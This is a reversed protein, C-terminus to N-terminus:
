DEVTKLLSEYGLKRLREQVIEANKLDTNSLLIYLKGGEMVGMYDTQRINGAVQIAIAEYSHYGMVIEVLACETLGKERADFFAKILIKFAEEKLVNTGTLYRKRRFSSMYRNARLIANQLVTKVVILRNAESESLREGSIGWFMLIVRIEDEAFVAGAMLPLGKDMATNRYIRDSKIEEYMEKMDVYRISNGLQRAEKSTASFLRAYEKNAVTYIAVDGTDMMKALVEAAYFLVEETTHKELSSIIEYVTDLGDKKKLAEIEQEKEKLLERQREIESRMEEMTMKLEKSSVEEVKWIELHNESDNNQVKQLSIDLLCQSENIKM